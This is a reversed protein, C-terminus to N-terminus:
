AWLTDAVVFIMFALSILGNVNFFAINVKSLDRHSILSHEYALLAAVVAVGALYVAGVPALAALLLLFAVMVAHAAAALKLARAVGFRRPISHLDNREDAEVDLCAYIIDFGVLWFVVAAGLVLSVFSIEERVAVWAGVPAASIALGLFVHSFSTFRKTLSYFFVIFLALPSLYLALRNLMASAGVLLLSSAVLFAAYAGIGIRGAPLARERTRPNARDYSADVIRNFAMAASRAGFMAVVIWFLTEVEPMGGAALFASIVAFPLAFVTHQIKIDALIINLQWM